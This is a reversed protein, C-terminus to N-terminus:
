SLLSNLEDESRFEKAKLLNCQENYLEPYVDDGANDRNVLQCITPHLNFLNVFNNEGKIFM